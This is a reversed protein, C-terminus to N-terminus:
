EKNIFTCLIDMAELNMLMGMHTGEIVYFKSRLEPALEELKQGMSASYLPVLGDGEKTTLEKLKTTGTEDDTYYGSVETEVGNGVIFISNPRYLLSVNEKMSKYKRYVRANKIFDQYRPKGLYDQMKKQVDKAPLDESAADHHLTEILEEYDKKSKYLTRDFSEKDVVKQYPYGELMKRTPFLEILGDYHKVIDPNIGFFKELILDKIGGYISGTTVQNYAQPAGEYPTCLSIYKEVKDKHERLYHGSVLGGMSHAVIDVKVRGGQNISDIFSDLKQSTVSNSKRWDYSFQYIARGPCKILLANLLMANVSGPGTHREFIKAYRLDGEQLGYLENEISLEERLEKYDSALPIWVRKAYTEKDSSFMGTKREEESLYKEDISFLESGTIGPIFIIPRKLEAISEKEADYRIIESAFSKAISAKNKLEKLEKSDKLEKLNKM